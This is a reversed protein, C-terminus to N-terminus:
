PDRTQELGLQAGAHSPDLALVRAFGEAAETRRGLAQLAHARNYSAQVDDPHTALFADYAKVAAELELARVYPSIEENPDLCPAHHSWAEVFRSDLHGGPARAHLEDLLRLAQVHRGARQASRAADLLDDLLPPGDTLEIAREFSLQADDPRGAELLARGQWRWSDPRRPDLSVARAIRRLGEDVAGEHLDLLGLSVHAVIYDPNESLVDLFLERARAPDSPLLQVGLNYRATADGGHAVSHSWLTLDDKWDANTVHAAVGFWLVGAVATPAWARTPLARRLLLVGALLLWPLGPVIRYDTVAYRLPVFSSTPAIAIGYALLAFAAAPRSRRLTWALALTAAVGLLGLAVAPQALAEGLGDPVLPAEPLARLTYPWLVHWLYSDVQARAQTLAYTLSSTPVEIKDLDSFALGLRTWAFFAVPVLAAASARAGAGLLRRALPRTPVVDPGLLLEYAGVLGPAMVATTKGLMALALLLLTSTWGLATDGRRRRMRAYVTLASLLFVHMLLLDRACLYNVPVGAVPHVAYLAAAALAAGRGPASPPEGRRARAAALVEVLLAYVLWACLVHLGLNTVHYTSPDHRGARAFDLSLTLPLLPRYQVLRPLTANTSPEVFHRWWPALQEVGPNGVIRYWDDLHFGNRLTNEFAATALLALALWAAAARLRPRRPPSVHSDHGRSPEAM